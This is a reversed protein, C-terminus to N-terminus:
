KSRTDREKRWRQPMQPIETELGPVCETESTERTWPVRIAAGEVGEGQVHPSSCWLAWPMDARPYIGHAAAPGARYVAQGQPAGEMRWKGRVREMTYHTFIETVLCDLSVKQANWWVITLWIERKDTGSNASRQKHNQGFRFRSQQAAWAWWLDFSFELEQWQNNISYTPM